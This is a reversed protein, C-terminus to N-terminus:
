ILFQFFYSILNNLIHPANHIAFRAHSDGSASYLESSQQISYMSVIIAIIRNSIIPFLTDITFHLNILSKIFLRMCKKPSRAKEDM